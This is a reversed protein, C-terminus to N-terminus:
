TTASHAAQSKEKLFKKYVVFDSFVKNTIAGLLFAVALSIADLGVFCAVGIYVLSAGKVINMRKIENMSVTLPFLLIFPFIVFATALQIYFNPLADLYEPKAFVTIFPEIFLIIGIFFAVVVVASIRIYRRILQDLQKYKQYAYLNHVEPTVAVQINRKLKELPKLLKQSLGFLAVQTPSALVGLLFVGGGETLKMYGALNSHFFMHKIEKAMPRLTRIDDKLRSFSPKLRRIIGFAMILPPAQSIIANITVIYIVIEPTLYGFGFWFVAILALDVATGTIQPIIISSFRNNIRLIAAYFSSFATFVASVSYIQILKGLSKDEYFTQAIWDAFIFVSGGVFVGLVICAAICIWIIGVLEREKGEKRFQPYYKFLIDQVRIELFNILFQFLGVIILIRGYDAVSLGKTLLSVRGLNLLVGTAMGTLSLSLNKFIRRYLKSQKLRELYQKIIKM